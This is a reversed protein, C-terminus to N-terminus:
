LEQSFEVSAAHAKDQDAHTGGHELPRGGHGLIEIQPELIEDVGPDSLSGARHPADEDGTRKAHHGGGEAAGQPITEVDDSMSM